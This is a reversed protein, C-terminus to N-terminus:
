TAPASAPQTAGPGVCRDGVCRLGDRCGTSPRTTNPLPICPGGEVGLGPLPAPASAPRSRMPHVCRDDVCRLGARCGTSPRPSKPLPICEGGEGGLGPLIGADLPRFGRRAPVPTPAPDDPVPQARACREAPRDERGAAVAFVVALVAAPVACGALLGASVAIADGGASAAKGGIGGCAMAAVAFIGAGVGLATSGGGEEPCNAEGRTPVSRPTPQVAPRSCSAVILACGALCLLSPRM